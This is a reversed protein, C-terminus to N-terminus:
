KKFFNSINQMGKEKVVPKKPSPKINTTASKKKPGTNSTSTADSPDDSAKSFKNPPLEVDDVSLERKVGKKVEDKPVPLPANDETGEHDVTSRDEEPEQKM